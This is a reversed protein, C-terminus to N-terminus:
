GGPHLNHVNLDYQSQFPFVIQYTLKMLFGFGGSHKDSYIAYGFNVSKGSEIWSANNLIKGAKYGVNHIIWEWVVGMTSGGVEDGRNEEIYAYMVWPTKIKYSNTIECERNKGNATYILEGNDITDKDAETLAIIWNGFAEGGKQNPLLDWDIFFKGTPDSYM